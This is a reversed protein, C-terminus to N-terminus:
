ILSPTHLIRAPYLTEAFHLLSPSYSGFSTVPAHPVSVGRCSKIPYILISAVTAAPEGAPEEGGEGGGGFLSSLFSAAKEM